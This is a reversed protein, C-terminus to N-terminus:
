QANHHQCLLSIFIATQYYGTSHRSSVPYLSLVCYLQPQTPAILSPRVAVPAEHEFYTLWPDAQEFLRQNEYM